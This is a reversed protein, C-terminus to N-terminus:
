EGKYIKRQLGPHFVTWNSDENADGEIIQHFQRMKADLDDLLHLAVAEYTMPVKASGYELKGHHSVIMHKLQIALTEPFPEGTLKEVEVIKKELMSVGIVLHGIMQGEDTYGLDRQYLLEKLKGLDHLFAGAVLLDRKIENAYFASVANAVQMLNAVHELLGGHYSHHHKVAAPARTFQKMFAEDGLFTDMLNRLNPNTMSQVLERIQNLYTESEERSVYIFDEENVTDEKAPEVANVIVQMAGNYFQSIGEIEVFDGNNFTSAIRDNANWLMGNISGTRDSLQMQLYLNGKRNQRLQKGGVLYVERVPEGDGLQNIFQRSM